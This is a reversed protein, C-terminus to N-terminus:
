CLLSIKKKKGNLIIINNKLSQFVKCYYRFPIIIFKTTSFLHRTSPSLQASVIVLYVLQSISKCFESLM